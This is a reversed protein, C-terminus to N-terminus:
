SNPQWQLEITIKANQLPRVTLYHLYQNQAEQLQGDPDASSKIHEILGPIDKFDGDFASALASVAVGALPSGLASAVIPAGKEIIPLIDQLAAKFFSM